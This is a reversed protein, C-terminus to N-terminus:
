RFLIAAILGAIAGIVSGIISTAKWHGRSEARWKELEQIKNESATVRGNTKVVQELIRDTKEDMNMSREDLRSLLDQIELPNM